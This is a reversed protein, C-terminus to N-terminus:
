LKIRSVDLSLNSFKRKEKFSKWEECKACFIGLEKMKKNHGVETEPFPKNRLFINFGLGLFAIIVVILSIVFVGLM